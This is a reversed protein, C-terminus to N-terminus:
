PRSAIIVKLRNPAPFADVGKPEIMVTPETILAKIIGEAKSDGRALAEDAFLLCCDHLPKNFNNTMVHSSAISTGHQGFIRRMVHGFTSKGTGKGGRLVLAVEAQREPHQVTFAAWRLMYDAAKRDGAALVDEILQRLLPWEGARPKVHLGRWLNLEDGDEFAANPRFVVSRYQRRMPNELWWKGASSYTPNGEKTQGVQVKIHMYRNRFDEFSQHVLEERSPDVESLRWSVVRCKGGYMEVVAHKANIERLMPEIVEERAREIQRAVYEVSRKQRLPHDSIGFDPDLLVSAIMDDECGARVLECTVAWMVESKSGYRTPDDPDDGQVILMRTRQTVAPPLEDLDKIQPLDATLEVGGTSSQTEAIPAPTFDTLAYTSDELWVTATPREVRGRARKKDDPLNIFGPLRLIRSVDHTSDGQLDLALQRNYAELRSWDDPGAMPVPDRLRWLAQYGNGSDVVASPRPKYAELAALIRERETQWVAGKAPDIDVHLMTVAAVERKSAKKTLAGLPPNVMYYCNQRGSFRGIWGAGAKADFHTETTTGGVLRIATLTVGPFPSEPPRLWALFRATQTDTKPEDAM